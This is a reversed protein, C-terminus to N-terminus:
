IKKIAEDRNKQGNWHRYELVVCFYLFVLAATISVLFSLEDLEKFAIAAQMLVDNRDSFEYIYVQGIMGALMGIFGAILCAKCYCLVRFM